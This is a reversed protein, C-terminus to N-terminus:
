ADALARSRDVCSRARGLPHARAHAPTSQVPQGVTVAKRVAQTAADAGRGTARRSTRPSAKVAAKAGPASSAQRAAWRGLGLAMEARGLFAPAPWGARVAWAPGAPWGYAVNAALTAVVALGLMVRALWPTRIGARAAQLMVMSAAVVTGDISVPLLYPALPTQGHTVALHEIHVFSVTAAILSVLLVSAVTVRRVVVDTVPRGGSLAQARRQITNRDPPHCRAPSPAGSSAEWAMRASMRAEHLDARLQDNEDRLAANEAALDPLLVVTCQPPKGHGQSPYVRRHQWPLRHRGRLWAFGSVAALLLLLPAAREAALLVDLTLLVGAALLLRRTQRRTM